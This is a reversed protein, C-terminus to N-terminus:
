DEYTQAPAEVLSAMGHRMMNESVVRAVLFQRLYDPGGAKSGIGSLRYGGFPQRGVIAGTITRNLYLNGAHFEERAKRLNSPTRSHVGGTLAYPTSNAIDLAEEFDRAKLVTLM